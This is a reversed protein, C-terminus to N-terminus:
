VDTPSTPAGAFQLEKVQQTLRSILQDVNQYNFSCEVIVSHLKYQVRKVIAPIGAIAYADYKWSDIGWTFAGWFTNSVDLLDTTVKIIDGPRISEIDYGGNESLADDMIEATITTQIASVQALIKGMIETMDAGVTIGPDSIREEFIGFANQSALANTQQMLGGGGLFVIRNRMTGIQKNVKYNSIKEINITHSRSLTSITGMYLVDDGGVFYYWNTPLLQFVADLAEQCTKMEFEYTKNEGLNQISDATYTIGIDANNLIAKVMDAPDATMTFTTLTGNRFIRSSLRSANPIFLHWMSETRNDSFNIDVGAYIGSWIQVESDGETISITVINGIYTANFQREAGTALNHIVPGTYGAPPSVFSGDVQIGNPDSWWESFTMTTKMRVESITGNLEMTFQLPEVFDDQTMTGAFTGDSYFFRMLYQKNGKM